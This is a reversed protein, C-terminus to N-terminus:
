SKTVYQPDRGDQADLENFILKGVRRYDSDNDTKYAKLAAKILQRTKIMSVIREGGVLKMQVDGNSNLVLMKSRQIAQKEDETFDEDSDFQLEDGPQVDSDIPVELVFKYPKSCYVPDPDRAEVSHVEIVVGEEDIFIIDLDIDTEAMTFYIDTLSDFPFLMGGDEPLRKCKSLGIHKKQETDAICVDYEKDGIKITTDPHKVNGGEQYKDTQLEQIRANVRNQDETNDFYDKKRIYMFYGPREPDDVMIWEKMFEPNAATLEIEETIAPHDKRKMFEILDRENNERVSSGHWSNDKEDFNFMKLKKGAEFDKPKGALEWFRRMDYKEDYSRLNEPLSNLFRDFHKDDRKLSGGKEFQDVNEQTFIEIMALKQENTLDSNLIDNITM